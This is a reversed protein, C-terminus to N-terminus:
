WKRRGSKISRDFARRRRRAPLSGACCAAAAAPLARHSASWRSEATSCSCWSASTAGGARAPRVGQANELKQEGLRARPSPKAGMRKTNQKHTGARERAGGHWHAGFSMREPRGPGNEGAAGAAGCPGAAAAAGICTGRPPPGSAQSEQFRGQKLRRELHCSRYAGAHAGKKLNIRRRTYGEGDTRAVLLHIIRALHVEHSAM